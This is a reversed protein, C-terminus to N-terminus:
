IQNRNRGAGEGTGKSDKAPAERETPPRTEDSYKRNAGELVNSGKPPQGTFTPEVNPLQVDPHPLPKQNDPLPEATELHPQGAKRGQQTVPLQEHDM